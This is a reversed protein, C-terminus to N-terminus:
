TEKLVSEFKETIVKQLKYVKSTFEDMDDINYLFLSNEYIDYRIKPFISEILYAFTLKEDKLVVMKTNIRYKESMEKYNNDEKIVDILNNISTLIHNISIKLLDKIDYKYNDATKDYVIIKPKLQEITFIIEPVGGKNLYNQQDELTEQIQNDDDQEDDFKTAFKYYSSVVQWKPHDLAIGKVPVAFCSVGYYTEIKTNIDIDKKDVVAFELQDKAVENNIKGVSEDDNDNIVVNSFETFTSKDYALTILESNLTRRITNVIAIPVNTFKYSVYKKEDEKDFVIDFKSAMNRIYKPIKNIKKVTEM